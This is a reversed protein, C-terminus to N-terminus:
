PQIGRMLIDAVQEAAAAADIEWGELAVPMWLSAFIGSIVVTLLKPDVTRIEGEEIASIILEHLHHEKQSRKHLAWDRLEENMVENDWFLFRTLEQNEQCFRFHGELLMKIKARFTLSKSIDTELSNDYRHFTMEMVEQLLQLKSGFYEYITGKGIGAALAIEEMKTHHYGKQAFVQIASAIISERKGIKGRSLSM